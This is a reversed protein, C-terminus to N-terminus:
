VINKAEYYEEVEKNAHIAEIVRGALACSILYAKPAIGRLARYSFSREIYAPTISATYAIFFLVSALFSFRFGGVFLSIWKEPASLEKAQFLLVLIKRVLSFVITVSALIILFAITDLQKKALFLFKESAVISLKPYVHFALIGGIILGITKVGESIFGRSIASYIIRLFLILVFFDILGLREIVEM